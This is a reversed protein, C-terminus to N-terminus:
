SRSDIAATTRPPVAGTFNDFSANLLGRLLLSTGLTTIFANVGLATIILGNALGIAIGILLVGVVAPLMRDPNGDMFYSAMVATVSIQYAVSLDLSGGLIVFTQGVAVIGLAVSRVLTNTLNVQGGSAVILVWSAVAVVALVGFIPNSGEASVTRWVRGAPGPVARGAIM